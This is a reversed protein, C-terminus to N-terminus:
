NEKMWYENLYIMLTVALKTSPSKVYFISKPQKPGPWAACVKHGSCKYAIWVKIIECQVKSPSEDPLKFTIWSM